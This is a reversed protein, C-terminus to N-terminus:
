EAIPDLPNQIEDIAQETELDASQLREQLERRQEAQFEMERQLLQQTERIHEPLEEGKDIIRFTVNYHRELRKRTEEDNWATKYEDEVLGVDLDPFLRYGDPFALLDDLMQQSFEKRIRERYSAILKGREDIEGRRLMAVGPAKERMEREFEIREDLEAESEFHIKEDIETGHVTRNYETALARLEEVREEDLGSAAVARWSEYYGDRGLMVYQYRDYREKGLQQKFRRKLKDLETGFVIRAARTFWDDGRSISSKRLKDRAADFQAIYQFEQPTPHFPQLHWALTKGVSTMTTEPDYYHAKKSLDFQPMGRSRDDKETPKTAAQEQSTTATKDSPSKTAASSTQEELSKLWFLTGIVVIGFSIIIIKKM